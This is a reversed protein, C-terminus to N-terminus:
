PKSREGTASETAECPEGGLAEIAAVAFQMVDHGVRDDEAMFEAAQAKVAEVANKIAAEVLEDAVSQTCDCPEPYREKDFCRWGHWGGDVDAGEERLIRVFEDRMTM